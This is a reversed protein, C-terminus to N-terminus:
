SLRLKSSEQVLQEHINLKMRGIISLNGLGNVKASDSTPDSVSGSAPDEPDLQKFRASLLATELLGTELEQLQFILITVIVIDIVTDIVIVVVVLVVFGVVVVVVAIDIVIIIIVIIFVFVVFIVIVVVIVVIVIIIVVVSVM